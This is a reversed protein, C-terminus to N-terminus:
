SAYLGHTKDFDGRHRQREIYQIYTKLLTELIIKVLVSVIILFAM